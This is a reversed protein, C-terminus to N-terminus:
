VDAIAVRFVGRMVSLRRAPMVQALARIGGSRSLGGGAGREGALAAEPVGFGVTCLKVTRNGAM